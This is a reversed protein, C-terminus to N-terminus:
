RRFLLIGYRHTPDTWEAEVRLGHSEVDRCFREPDFKASFGVNISEGRRLELELDLGPLAIRQDRRAWLRGDVVEAGADYYAVARYDDLDLQGGFRRALHALHNLRFEAFASHGPPDNYCTEFVEASKLFDASVAFADGPRLTAAIRALLADREAATTNGINAGLFLVALPPGGDDRLRDLGAEYRGCLGSVALGPVDSLRDASHELMERSVDVPLYTTPRDRACAELLLRTKKASGSGLEAVRPTDLRAAIDGSHRRLLEWEVRTLYYTPLETIQEFLESGRADYGFWPPIRPLEETLCERLPATDDFFGSELEVPHVSM